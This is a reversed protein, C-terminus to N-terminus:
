HTVRKRGCFRALVYDLISVFFGYNTVLQGFTCMLLGTFMGLIWYDLWVAIDIGCCMIVIIVCCIVFGFYVFLNM